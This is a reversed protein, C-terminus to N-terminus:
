ARKYEQFYKKMWEYKSKVNLDTSGLGKEILNHLHDLFPMYDERLEADMGLYNTFYYNNECPCLWSLLLEKSEDKTHFDTPNNYAYEILIPDVIVRPYIAIKSEMEFAKIMAPGVIVNGSHFVDGITVGGRLLLGAQALEIQMWLIDYIIDLITGKSVSYSIVISDSFSILEKPNDKGLYISGYFRQAQLDTLTKILNMRSYDDLQSKEVIEKFGMIDLFAVVKQIYIYNSDILM